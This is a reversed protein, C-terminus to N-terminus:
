VFRALLRITCRVPIHMGTYRQFRLGILRVPNTHASCEAGRVPITNDKCFRKANIFIFGNVILLGLFMSVIMAVARGGTVIGACIVPGPTNGGGILGIIMSTVGFSRAAMELTALISM